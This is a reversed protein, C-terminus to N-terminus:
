KIKKMPVGCCYPTTKPEEDFEIIGCSCEEDPCVCVYQVKKGAVNCGYNKCM